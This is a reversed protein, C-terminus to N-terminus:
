SLAYFLRANDATIRARSQEGIETRASFKAHAAREGGGHGYDTYVFFHEDDGAVDLLYPLDDDVECAVHFRLEALSQGRRGGGRVGLLHPLWASGCEIFGVRLSPFRAPVGEASLAAFASLEDFSNHGPLRVKPVGHNVPAWRFGKHICIPLDLDAALAYAPFFYPDSAAREQEVGRKFVGCAGHEKAFRMEELADDMSRFPVMAVWRLRDGGEACRAALWRNYARYLAVEMEPRQTVESLLLSPYIVHTEVGLETMHALRGPVDTLTRTEITTGTKADDTLHRPYLQGDIFWFRHRDHHGAEGKLWDAEDAGFAITSPALHASAAPLYSWTEECEHVHADADVYM